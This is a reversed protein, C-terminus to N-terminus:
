KSSLFTGGRLVRNRPNLLGAPRGLRPREIDGVGVTHTRADPHNGVVRARDVDEDVDGPQAESFSVRMTSMGSSVHSATIATFRRPGNTVQLYASGIM